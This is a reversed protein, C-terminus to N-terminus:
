RLRVRGSRSGPTRGDPRGSVFTGNLCPRTDVGGGNLIRGSDAYWCITDNPFNPRPSGVCRSPDTLSWPSPQQPSYPVTPTDLNGVFVNLPKAAATPAVVALTSQGTM